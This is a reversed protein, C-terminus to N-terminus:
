LVEGLEKMTNIEKPTIKKSEQINDIFIKTTDIASMGSFNHALTIESDFVEFVIGVSEWNDKYNPKKYTIVM